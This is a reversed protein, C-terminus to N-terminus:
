FTIHFWMKIQVVLLESKALHSGCSSFTELFVQPWKSRHWGLKVLTPFASRWQCQWCSLTLFTFTISIQTVWLGINNAHYKNSKPSKETNGIQKCGSLSLQSLTLHLQTETFLISLTKSFGKKSMRNLNSHLQCLYLLLLLFAIASGGFYSKM